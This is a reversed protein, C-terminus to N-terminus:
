ELFAVKNKLSEKLSFDEGEKEPFSFAEEVQEFTKDDVHLALKSRRWLADQAEFAWEHEQLYKIEAEYVHEGYNEGLDGLCSADKVFMKFRRGYARVYRSLLVSPIWPYIEAQEAIYLELDEVICGTPAVGASWRGSVRGSLVMLRDVVDQALVRHEELTGGYVSLLPIDRRKHHYVTYGRGDRKVLPVLRVASYTFLVDRKTITKEFAKNYALIVTEMAEDSLRSERFDEKGSYEYPECFPGVLTYKEEYPRSYIVQGDSQPLAYAQEGEYQKPLIIHSECRYQVSPLDPDACGVGMKDLFINGWAGTANVVMSATVELVSDEKDKTNRLLVRWVGDDNQLSECSTYTLIKAGRLSADLAYHVVLRTDDVACENFIFAEGTPNPRENEAGIGGLVRLNKYIAEKAAAEAEEGELVIKKLPAEIAEYYPDLVGLPILSAGGFLFPKSLRNYTSIRLRRSLKGFRALMRACFRAGNELDYACSFPVVCPFSRMLHQANKFLVDQEKLTKYNAHFAGNESVSFGSHIIKSTACSSGSALDQEEVLLVSLGRGAADRAISVGNLGGGVVCLDYYLKQTM